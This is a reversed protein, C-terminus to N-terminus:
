RTRVKLLLQKAKRSNPGLVNDDIWRELEPLVKDPSAKRLGLPLFERGRGHRPDNALAILRDADADTAAEAIASGLLSKMESESDTEAKFLEILADTNGMSDPTILARVISQRIPRSYGLQLHKILVPIAEPYPSATNVLDSISRPPGSYEQGPIRDLVVTIGTRQLEQVLPREEDRLQTATAARAAEKEQMKRQYEPNRALEAMLDAANM